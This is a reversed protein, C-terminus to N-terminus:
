LAASLKAALQKSLHMVPNRGIERKYILRAPLPPIVKRESGTGAM